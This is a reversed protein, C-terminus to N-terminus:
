RTQNPRKHLAHRAAQDPTAPEFHRQRRGDPMIVELTHLTFLGGLSWNCPKGDPTLRPAGAGLWRGVCSFGLYGDVAEFDAGAGANILDRGSQPTKCRPCIFVIDEKAPMGQATTAALFEELTM